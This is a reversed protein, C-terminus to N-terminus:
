RYEPSSPASPRAGSAPSSPRPTVTISNGVSGRETPTAEPAAIPPAAAPPGFNGNDFKRTPATPPPFSTGLDIEEETNPAYESGDVRLGAGFMWSRMRRDLAGPVEGTKGLSSVVNDMDKAFDPNMMVEKFIKESAAKSRAGYMRSLAYALVGMTGARGQHWATFQTSMNIGTMGTFKQIAAPISEDSVGVGGAGKEASRARLVVEGVKQVRNLEEPTFVGQLAGRNDEIAKVFKDPSNWYDIDKIVAQMLASRYTQMVGEDGTEKVDALIRRLGPRGGAGKSVLSQLVEDAGMNNNSYDTLLKTLTQTNIDKARETMANM